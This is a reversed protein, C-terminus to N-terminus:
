SARDRDVIVVRDRHMLVISSGQPREPWTPAPFRRLPIHITAEHGLPMGAIPEIRAAGISPMNKEFGVVAFALPFFKLTDAVIADGDRLDYHGIGRGVVTTTSPYPWVYLRFSDPLESRPSIFYERMVSPLDGDLREHRPRRMPEAALLHGIVARAVLAPQLVVVASSPLSLHLGFAARVWSGFANAFRSLAPDYISGLLDSNCFTCITHFGPATRGPRPSREVKGPVAGDLLRRILIPDPPMVLKPPVHDETLPGLRDCIQCRGKPSM